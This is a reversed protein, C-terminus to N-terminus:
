GENWWDDQDAHLAKVPKGEVAEDSSDSYFSVRADIPKKRYDVKPVSFDIWFAYETRGVTADLRKSRRWRAAYFARAETAFRFEVAEKVDAPWEFIVQFDPKFNGTALTPPQWVFGRFWKSALLTQPGLYEQASSDKPSSLTKIKYNWAAILGGTENKVQMGPMERKVSLSKSFTSGLTAQGKPPKGISAEVGFSPSIGWTTQITFSSTDNLTLPSHDTIKMDKTWTRDDEDSVVPWISLSLSELFAGRDRSGQRELNGSYFGSGVPRIRVYHKYPKELLLMEVCLDIDLKMTQSPAPELKGKGSWAAWPKFPFANLNLREVAYIGNPPDAANPVCSLVAEASRAITASETILFFIVIALRFIM